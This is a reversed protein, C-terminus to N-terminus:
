SRSRQDHLRHSIRIRKGVDRTGVTTYATTSRERMSEDLFDMPVGAVAHTFSTKYFIGKIM